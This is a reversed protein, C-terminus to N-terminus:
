KKELSFSSTQQKKKPKRLDSFDNILRSESEKKFWSKRKM